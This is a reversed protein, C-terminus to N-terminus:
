KEVCVGGTFKGTKIRTPRITVCDYDPQETSTFRITGAAVSAIGDRNFTFGPPAGPLDTVIANLGNASATLKDAGTLVGDGDPAPSTDEYTAYGNGSIQVFFVRKRQMARGRANMLDAYLQKTESEVRYKESLGQFSTIGMTLLITVIAIVILIEVLTFGGRM